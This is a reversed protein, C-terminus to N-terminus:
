NRNLKIKFWAWFIVRFPTNNDKQFNLISELFVVYFPANSIISLELFYDFSTLNEEESYIISFVVGM